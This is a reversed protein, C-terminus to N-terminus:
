ILDDFDLRRRVDELEEEEIVIPNHRGGPRLEPPQDGEEPGDCRPRKYPAPNTDVSMNDSDDEESSSDEGELHNWGFQQGLEVMDMYVYRLFRLQTDDFGTTTAGLLDMMDLMGKIHAATTPPDGREEYDGDKKCYEINSENDGRCCFWHARPSLTKLTSFRIRGNCYLYIQLHPTRCSEGVEKGILVYRAMPFSLIDQREEETYNNLTGCWARYKDQPAANKGYPHTVHEAM